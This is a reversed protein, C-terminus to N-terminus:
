RTRVPTRTRGNWRGAKSGDGEVKTATMRDLDGITVGDIAKLIARVRSWGAPDDARLRSLLALADPEFPAGPDLNAADALAMADDPLKDRINAERAAKVPDMSM